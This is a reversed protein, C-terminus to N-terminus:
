KRLRRALPLLGALACGLLPLTSAADPTSGATVSTFSYALDEYGGDGLNPLDEFGVATGGYPGTYNADVWAHAYGDSNRTGPGTYWDYVHGADRTGSFGQAYNVGTTDAVVHFILETGAAFTGLDVHDGAASLHNEFIWNGTVGTGGGPNSHTSGLVEVYLYDSYSGSGYLFTATVDGGTTIVSAGIIPTGEGPYPDIASAIGASLALTTAFAIGKVIRVSNIKM